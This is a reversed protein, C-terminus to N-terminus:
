AAEDAWPSPLGYAVRQTAALLAYGYRRDAELYVGEAWENWANIFTMPHGPIAPHEQAWQAAHRLWAEYLPPICGPFIGAKNGKRATNDWSGALVTRALAQSLPPAMMLRTLTRYHVVNVGSNDGYWYHLGNAYASLPYAMSKNPPFEFLFDVGMDAPTPPTGDPKRLHSKEHGGIIIEGIGGARARERWRQMVEQVQVQPITGAGSVLPFAMLVPRGDIRYYGPHQLIPALDDIFREPDDPLNKNELLVNDQHARKDVWTRTWNENCWMVMFPLRLEDWRQMYQELPMQLMRRGSFWYHYFIFGELGAQKALEVQRAMIHPERLDYYGLEGPQRPQYHGAFSPRARAVNSWETFGEGWWESNEPTPHFQPLYFAFLKTPIREKEPAPPLKEVYYDPHPEASTDIDRAMQTAADAWPGLLARDIDRSPKARLMFQKACFEPAQEGMGRVSISGFTFISPGRAGQMRQFYEGLHEDISVGAVAAEFGAQQFMRLIEGATFFRIHTIDLLGNEAYTFRGEAIENMLWLNRVNPISAIIEADETLWPQLSALIGWPNYTHELVDGLVVGDVSRPKLGLAGLDQEEFRGCVTRDLFEASEAAAARSMEFGWYQCGPFKEKCYQGTRGGSSGIELVLRRPSTFLDILEKRALRHYPLAELSEVELFKQWLHM